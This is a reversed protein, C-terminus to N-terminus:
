REQDGIQELRLAGGGRLRQGRHRTERKALLDNGPTTARRRVLSQTVLAMQVTLRITKRRANAGRARTKKEYVM